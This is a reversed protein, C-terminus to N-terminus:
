FNRCVARIKVQEEPLCSGEEIAGVYREMRIIGHSDVGALSANILTEAVYDSDEAAGGAKELMEAGRRARRCNAALHLLPAAAAGIPLHLCLSFLSLSTRATTARTAPAWFICLALAAPLSGLPRPM